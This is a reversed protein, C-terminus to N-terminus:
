DSAIRIGTNSFKAVWLDLDPSAIASKVREKVQEAEAMSATLAFVTPGSGSMM